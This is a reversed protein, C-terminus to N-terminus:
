TKSCTRGHVRFTVQWRGREKMNSKNRYMEKMGQFLSYLGYLAILALLAIAIGLVNRWMFWTANCPADDLHWSTASVARVTTWDAYMLASFFFTMKTLIGRRRSTKERQM